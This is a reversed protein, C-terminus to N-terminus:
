LMLPMQPFPDQTSTRCGTRSDVPGGSRRVESISVRALLLYIDVDRKKKKKNM